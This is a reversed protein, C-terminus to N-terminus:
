LADTQSSVRDRRAKRVRIASFLLFAGVMMGEIPPLIRSSYSGSSLMTVLEIASGLLFVLASGFLIWIAWTEYTKASHSKEKSIERAREIEVRQPFWVFFGVSFGVMGLLLLVFMLYLIPGTLNPFICFTIFGVVDICVMALIAKVTKSVFSNM